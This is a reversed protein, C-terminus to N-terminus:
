VMTGNTKPITMGTILTKDPNILSRSHEKSHFEKGTVSNTHAIEPSWSIKRIPSIPLENTM